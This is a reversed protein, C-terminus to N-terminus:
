VATDQQQCNEEYILKDEQYGISLRVGVVLIDYYLSFAISLSPPYSDTCKVHM